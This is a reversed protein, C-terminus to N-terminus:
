NIDEKELSSFVWERTARNWNSLCDIFAQRDLFRFSVVDFKKTKVNTRLYSYIKPEEEPHFVMNGFSDLCLHRIVM